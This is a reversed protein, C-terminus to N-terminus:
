EEGTRRLGIDGRGNCRVIALVMVERESGQFGDVNAITCGVLATQGQLFEEQAKYWTLVGIDKRVLEGKDLLSAVVSCVVDAEAGNEFSCRVKVEEGRTHVFHLVSAQLGRFGEPFTLCIQGQVM